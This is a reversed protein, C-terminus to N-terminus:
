CRTCNSRVQAASAAKCRTVPIGRHAGGLGSRPASRRGRRSADRCFPSRSSRSQDIPKDSLPFDDDLYRIVLLDRVPASHDIEGFPMVHNWGPEADLLLHRQPLVQLDSQNTPCMRVTRCLILGAKGLYKDWLGDSFKM